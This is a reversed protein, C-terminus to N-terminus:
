IVMNAVGDNVSTGKPWILDINTHRTHSGAKKRTMFPSVHIPFSLGDLQGVMAGNDM